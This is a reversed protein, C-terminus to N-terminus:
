DHIASKYFAHLRYLQLPRYMLFRFVSYLNLHSIYKKQLWLWKIRSKFRIKENKLLDLWSRFVITDNYFSSSDDKGALLNHYHKHFLFATQVWPEGFDGGVTYHIMNLNRLVINKFHLSARLSFDIDYFHFGQLLQENFPIEQWLSKRCALFVGDLVKVQATIVHDDHEDRIKKVIGKNDHLINYYDMEKLGTYWGSPIVSKYASGAVGIVGVSADRTFQETLLSGWSLTQFVVDEHLFLLYPYSAKAALQNYIKCIPLNEKRNDTVLLEYDLGITQRINESVQQLYNPNV